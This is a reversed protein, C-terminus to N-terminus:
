PRPRRDALHWARAAWPSGRLRALLRRDATVLPCQRAEALALYFCDYVPHNLAAAIAAAGSALPALPALEAFYRSLTAAILELQARSIRELRWLRWGANCTEAILLEPSILAEGSEVLRTAAAGHPEEAVFWTVAVSADVVCTM